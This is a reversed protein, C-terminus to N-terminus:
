EVHGRLTIGVHHVDPPFTGHRSSPITACIITASGSLDIDDALNASRVPNARWSSDPTFFVARIVVETTEIEVLLLVYSYGRSASAWLKIHGGVFTVTVRPVLVAVAIFMGHAWVGAAKFSTITASM